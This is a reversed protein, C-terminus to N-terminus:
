DADRGVSFGREDEGAGIQNADRERREAGGDEGGVFGNIIHVQSDLAHIKELSKGRAELM